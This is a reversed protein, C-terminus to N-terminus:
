AKAEYLAFAAGVPDAVVAFSGQPMTVVPALSKGGLKELSKLSASLSKVPFYVLWHPPQAGQMIGGFNSKEGPQRLFHYPFGVDGPGDEWGLLSQYFSKSKEADPTHVELWCAVPNM